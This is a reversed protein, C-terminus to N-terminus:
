WPDLDYILELSCKYVTYVSGNVCKVQVGLNKYHPSDPPADQLASLVSTISAADNEPNGTGDSTFEAGTVLTVNTPGDDFHVLRIQNGTNNTGWVARFNASIIRATGALYRAASVNATTATMFGYTSSNDAVDIGPGPVSGILIEETQLIRKPNHWSVVGFPYTSNIFFLSSSDTRVRGVLARTADGTKIQTGDTHTTPATASAELTMTGASMYAYVYYSTSASLGSNSLTPASSPIQENAGNIWLYSGNLRSLTVTTTNTCVLRCQSAPTGGTGSSADTIRGQQDVTINANTYDGPTVATDALKDATVANDDLKTTTVAGADIEDPGVTDLMALDGLDTADLVALNGLGLATRANAASTAGTGGEAVSVTTGTTWTSAGTRRLIGTGSLAEITSLDPFDALLDALETWKGASLDTAFVGSTHNEDAQYLSGDQVVVQYQRYLTATAWVTLPYIGGALLAPDLQDYGVSENAIAGDDRQILELNALIEDTTTRLAGFEVDLEQGPFQPQALEFSYFQTAPDYDTPQSM